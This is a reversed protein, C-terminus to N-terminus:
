EPINLGGQIRGYIVRITRDEGSFAATARADRRRKSEWIIELSLGRGKRGCGKL